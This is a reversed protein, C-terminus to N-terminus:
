GAACFHFEDDGSLDHGPRRQAGPTRADLQARACAGDQPVAELAHTRLTQARPRAALFCNRWSVVRKDWNFRHPKAGPKKFLNLRCHRGGAPALGAQACLCDGAPDRHGADVFVDRLHQDPFWDPLLMLEPPIAPVMSWDVAGVMALYFRVYSNTAELGGLEHVKEQRAGFAAGDRFRGGAAPRCLGEGHREAGRPRRSSTGAATPFSSARSYLERAQRIKRFGAPGLIHLYLIYDSELTTDAELEAWWYGEQTQASLLWDTSRAIAQEVQSELNRRRVTGTGKSGGETPIEVRLKAEPTM